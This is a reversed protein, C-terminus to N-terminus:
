KVSKNPTVIPFLECVPDKTWEIEQEPISCRSFFKGNRIVGLIITGNGEPRMWVPLLTRRSAFFHFWTGNQRKNAQHM